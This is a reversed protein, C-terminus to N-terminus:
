CTYDLRGSITLTLLHTCEVWRWTGLSLLRACIAMIKRKKMQAIM